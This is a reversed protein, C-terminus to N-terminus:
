STQATTRAPEPRNYVLRGNVWTQEVVLDKIRAPDVALPDESLVTFDALYGPALRGLENEKFQAYAGGRTYARLAEEPRIAEPGERNVALHMGFLPSITAEGPYDSSFALGVGADLLSRFPYASRARKEGVLRRDKAPDAAAHPQVCALIGLRAMRELDMRDALQVHELRHRIPRLDVARALHEAADLFAKTAADGISHCAVQESSESLPGLFRAIEESPMGAGRTQPKDAYPQLLWATYTSFAGDLFFKHPGLQYWDRNFRKRRLRRDNEPQDGRSWCAIRSTLEGAEYLERIRDVHWPYWTNDQASTIGMRTLLTLAARLSQSVSAKDKSEQDQLKRYGPANHPERLIGTLRGAEDRDAGGMPWDNSSETVGILALARSNLWAGHGSFQTLIVPRNPFLEDLDSRHPDPCYEFDWGKARLLAGEPLERDAERLRELIQSKSLGILSVTRERAGAPVLHLHADNFGPVIAKGALDQEIPKTRARSRAEARAGPLSGAYLIRNEQIYLAEVRPNGDDMTVIPGGYIVIDANM